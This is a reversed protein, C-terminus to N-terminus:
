KSRREGVEAEGERRRRLLSVRGSRGSLRSVVRVTRYKELSEKILGRIKTFDFNKGGV